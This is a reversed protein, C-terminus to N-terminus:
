QVLDKQSYWEYFDYWHKYREASETDWNGKDFVEAITMNEGHMEVLRAFTPLSKGKPTDHFFGEREHTFMNLTEGDYFAVVESLIMRRDHKDKMLNMFDETSLWNTVDKMYGGPFGGLAPIAWSSDNVVLPKQIVNWADVVKAKTIEIAEHHQIENIDIKVQELEVTFKKAITSAEYFKSKNGTAFVLVTSM